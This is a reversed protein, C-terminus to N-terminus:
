DVQGATLAPLLVGDILTEATGVDLRTRRMVVNRFAIAPLLGGILEIPASAKIVGRDTWRRIVAALAAAPPAGIADYAAKGLEPHRTADSLLAGMVLAAEEHGSTYHRACELLDGRLSGTDPVVVPAQLARVAAIVLESKGPWRRYLAAKGTGAAKAVAEVTMGDYGHEILLRRTVSLMASELM